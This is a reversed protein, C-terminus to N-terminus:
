DEPFNKDMLTELANDGFLKAFIGKAKYSEIARERATPEGPNCNNGNELAELFTRHSEIVEKELIKRIERANM